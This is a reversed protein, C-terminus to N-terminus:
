VTISEVAKEAKSPKPKSEASKALEKGEAILDAKRKKEEADRKKKAATVAKAKEAAEDAERAEIKELNELRKKLHIMESEIEKRSASSSIKKVDGSDIKAGPNKLMYENRLVIDAHIEPDKVIFMKMDLHSALLDRNYGTSSFYGRGPDDYLYCIFERESADFRFILTGGRREFFNYEENGNAGGGSKYGHLIVAGSITVPKRNRTARAPHLYVKIFSHGQKQAEVLKDFAKSNINGIMATM